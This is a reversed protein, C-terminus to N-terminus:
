VLTAKRDGLHLTSATVLCVYRSRSDQIFDITKMLHCVFECQHQSVIGDTCRTIETNKYICELNGLVRSQQSSKSKKINRDETSGSSEFVKVWRCKGVQLVWRYTGDQM